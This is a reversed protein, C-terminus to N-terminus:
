RGHKLMAGAILERTVEDVGRTFAYTHCTACHSITMVQHSGSRTQRNHGVFFSVPIKTPLNLDVRSEFTGTSSKTSRTRTPTPRPPWSRAASGPRPM